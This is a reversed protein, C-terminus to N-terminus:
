RSKSFDELTTKLVQTKSLVIDGHKMKQVLAFDIELKVSGRSEQIQFAPFGDGGIRGEHAALILLGERGIQVIETRNHSVRRHIVMSDVEAIRNRFHERAKEDTSLGLLLLIVFPLITVVSGSNACHLYASM